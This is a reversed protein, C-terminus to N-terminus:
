LKQILFSSTMLLIQKCNAHKIRIDISLVEFYYLRYENVPMQSSISGDASLATAQVSCDEDFYGPNCICKKLNEDCYGSSPTSCSKPCPYAATFM